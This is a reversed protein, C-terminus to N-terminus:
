LGFRGKLAQWNTQVESSSLQDNYVSACAINGGFAAGYNYVGICYNNWVGAQNNHGTFTGVASGNKYVTFGRPSNRHFTYILHTWSNGTQTWRNTDDVPNQSWWEVTGNGAMRVTYEQNPATDMLGTENIGNPKVWFELSFNSTPGTVGSVNIYHSASGPLAYYGYDDSSYRASQHGNITGDRDFGSIDQITSQSSQYTGGLGFDWRILCGSTVYPGDVYPATSVLNGGVGGWLGTLGTMPAEKPHPHWLSSM